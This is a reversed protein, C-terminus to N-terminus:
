NMDVKTPLLPEELDCRTANTDGGGEIRDIARSVTIGRRKPKQTANRYVLYSDGLHIIGFAALQVLVEVKGDTGGNYSGNVEVRRSMSFDVRHTTTTISYLYAFSQFHIFFLCFALTGRLIVSAAQRKEEGRSDDDDTVERESKTRLQNMAELVQKRNGDFQRDLRKELGLVLIPDNLTDRLRRQKLRQRRAFSSKYKKELCPRFFIRKLGITAFVVVWFSIADEAFLGSIVIDRFDLLSEWLDILFSDNYM